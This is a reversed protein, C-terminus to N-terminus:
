TFLLNLHAARCFEDSAALRLILPQRSTVQGPIKPGRPELSLPPLIATSGM